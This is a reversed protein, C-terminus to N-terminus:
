HILAPGFLVVGVILAALSMVLVAGASIDKALGIMPHFHPHVADAIVELATNIMELALVAAGVVTILAFQIRSLRLVLSLLLAIVLLLIQIKFNREHWVIRMGEIAYKFSFGLSIYRKVRKM